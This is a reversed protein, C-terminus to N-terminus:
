GVIDRKQDEVRRILHSIANKVHQVEEVSFSPDLNAAVLGEFGHKVATELAELHNRADHAAHTVMSLRNAARTEHIRNKRRETHAKNARRASIRLPLVQAASLVKARVTERGDQPMGATFINMFTRLLQRSLEAPAVEVGATLAELESAYLRTPPVLGLRWTTSVTHGPASVYEPRVVKIRKSSNGDWDWRDYFVQKPNYDSIDFVEVAPHGAWVEQRPEYQEGWQAKVSSRYVNFLAAIDDSNYKTRNIFRFEGATVITDEAM